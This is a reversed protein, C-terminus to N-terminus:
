FDAGGHEEPVPEEGEGEQPQDPYAQADDQPFEETGEPSAPEEEPAPPEEDAPPAEEHAQHAEPEVYDFYPFPNVYIDYRIAHAVESVMGHDALTGDFFAMFTYPGQGAQGVWQVGSTEKTDPNTPVNRWVTTGKFLPNEKFTATIKYHGDFQDDLDTIDIDELHELAAVDADTLWNRHSPHNMITKKWFEPVKAVATAREKLLPRRKLRYEKEVDALKQYMDETVKEVREQAQKAATLLADAKTDTESRAFPLVCLAIALIVFKM